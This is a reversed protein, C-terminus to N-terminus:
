GNGCGLELILLKCKRKDFYTLLKKLTIKRIAWEKKLADSGDFEPLHQVVQDSYVRNERKRLDIYSKEFTNTNLLEKQYFIDKEFIFSSNALLIDRVTM